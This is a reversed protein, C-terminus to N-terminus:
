RTRRKSIVSCFSDTRRMSREFMRTLGVIAALMNVKVGGAPVWTNSCYLLSSPAPARRGGGGAGARGARCQGGSFRDRVWSEPRRAIALFEVKSMVEVM